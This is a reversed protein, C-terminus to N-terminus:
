QWRGGAKAWAALHEVSCFDDPIRYVGRHRVLLVQVDKLTRGCHACRLPGAETRPPEFAEGEGWDSGQMSWPVIHELRCFVASRRKGPEYARFGDDPDVDAGCWTCPESSM